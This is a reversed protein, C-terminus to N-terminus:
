SSSLTAEVRDKTRTISDAATDSIEDAADLLSQKVKRTEPRRGISRVISRLQEYPERGMSSGIVFGVALGVLLWLRKM